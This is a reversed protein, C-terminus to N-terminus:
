LNVIFNKELLKHLSRLQMNACVKSNHSKVYDEEEYHKKAQIYTARIRCILLFMEDLQVISKSLYEHIVDSLNGKPRDHLEMNEVKEFQQKNM